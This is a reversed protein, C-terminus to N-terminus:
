LLFPVQSPHRADEVRLVKARSMPAKPQRILKYGVESNLRNGKASNLQVDCTVLNRWDKDKGGRDKPIVHDLNLQKRPLKRGSYQCTFDDRILIAEKTLKPTVMPIKDYHACIVVLPVRIRRGRSVNIWLDGERIPLEIWQEWSLPVPASTFQHVGDNGAETAYDLAFGPPEGRSATEKSQSCLFTIASGVTRASYPIWHRNLQIVIERNLVSSM